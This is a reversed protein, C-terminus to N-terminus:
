KRYVFCYQIFTTERYQALTPELEISHIICACVAFAGIPIKSNEAIPTWLKLTAGCYLRDLITIYVVIKEPIEFIKNM